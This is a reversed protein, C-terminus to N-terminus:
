QVDSGTVITTFRSAIGLKGVVAQVAEASSGSALALMKQGDLLDLLELAGPMPTCSAEVMRAYHVAKEARLCVPDLTLGKAQVFDKIGRGQRVWWNFYFEVTIAIDHGGLTAQWAQCHLSETDALLGDLDLLVASIM